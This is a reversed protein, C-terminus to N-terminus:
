GAPKYTLALVGSDFAKTDALKLVTEDIEDKFLRKGKGVVVPHVWLRYEDILRHPMLSNVLDASGLLLIDQGREQKLKSIEGAVDGKILTSNNWEGQELTTSVVYKPLSNMRDAFGEPVDGGEERVEEDSRSPWAAAFGEYTVRGLLLADSTFLEEHKDKGMDETFLDNQLQWQDPAEMVGDLSLFESVVVRRMSDEKM